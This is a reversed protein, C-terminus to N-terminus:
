AFSFIDGTNPHDSSRKSFFRREITGKAYAEVSRRIDTTLHTNVIVCAGIASLMRVYYINKVKHMSAPNEDAANSAGNGLM